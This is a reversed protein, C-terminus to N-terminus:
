CLCDKEVNITKSKKVCFGIWLVFSVISLLLGETFWPPHYSLVLEHKGSPIPIAMFLYDARFIKTPRRDIHAQWGPDFSEAIRLMGGDGNTRIDIRGQGWHQIGINHDKGHIVTEELGEVMMVEGVPSSASTLTELVNENPHVYQIEKPFFVQPVKDPIEYTTIDGERINRLLQNKMIDHSFVTSVGALALLRHGGNRLEMKATEIYKTLRVDFLSGRVDLRKLGYLWNVNAPIAQLRNWKGGSQYLPESYIREAQLPQLYSIESLLNQYNIKPPLVRYTFFLIEATVIFAIVSKPFKLYIGIGLCILAIIPFLQDIEWPSITAPANTLIQMWREGSVSIGAKEIVDTILGIRSSVIWLCVSICIGFIIILIGYLKKPKLDSGITDVGIGGLTAMAGASLLLWRAPIRFGSFMPLKQLGIGIPTYKGFALLLGIGAIIWLLVADPHKRLLAILALVIIGMGVYPCAEWFVGSGWYDGTNWENTSNFTVTRQFGFIRPFVTGVIQLPFLSYDGVQLDSAILRNSRKALEFTPALQVAAIGIGLCGMVLLGSLVPILKRSTFGRGIGYLVIGVMSIATLQFHGALLGWGVAAIGLTVGQRWKNQIIWEIALWGLPLVPAALLLPLMDLRAVWFGGLGYGVAGVLAGWLSIKRGRLFAFMVLCGFVVAGVWRVQYVWSEPVILATIFNWPHFFGGQSEAHVPFGCGGYHCWFLSEEGHLARSHYVALPVNTLVTDKTAPIGGDWWVPALIAVVVIVLLIVSLTTWGRNV